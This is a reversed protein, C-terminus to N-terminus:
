NIENKCPRGAEFARANDLTTHMINELANHTLFGQHDTMIVNKFTLMRAFEDDQLIQNSRDFFFLDEEKEYDDLGMAGIKGSKIATIADSTNIVAGRSTNIIM